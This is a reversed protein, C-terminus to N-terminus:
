WFIWELLRQLLPFSDLLDYLWWIPNNSKPMTVELYGWDSERGYIDRTYAKIHYTGKIEWSHNAKGIRGGEPNPLDPAVFETPSGDGWYVYFVYNKEDWPSYFTYEYELGVSGSTPGSIIPKDLPHNQKELRVGGIHFSVGVFSTSVMLLTTIIPILCKM